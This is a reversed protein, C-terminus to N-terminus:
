VNKFLRCCFVGRQTQLLKLVICLDPAQFSPLSQVQCSLGIYIQQLYQTKMDAECAITHQSHAKSWDSKEYNTNHIIIVTIHKIQNPLRWFFHM